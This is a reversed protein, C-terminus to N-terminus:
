AARVLSAIDVGYEDHIKLALELSATKKGARLMSLYPASIGLEKAVEHQTRKTQEFFTHLDPYM